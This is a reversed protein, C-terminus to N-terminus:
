SVTDVFIVGGHRWKGELNCEAEQVVVNGAFTFQMAFADYIIVTNTVSLM